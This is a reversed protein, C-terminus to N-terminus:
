KDLTDLREARQQNQTAQKHQTSPGAETSPESDEKLKFVIQHRRSDIRDIVVTLQDDLFFGRKKSKLSLYVQDFSYKDPMDKTSVFGELGVDDLKIFFGASTSRFLRAQFTQGKLTEAYQAKLWQEMLNVSQRARQQADALLELSKQTLPRFSTGKIKNKILRHVYFDVYKRIPSTFNTYLDLGMGCHPAAQTALVSRELQRDIVSRLPSADPTREALNVLESFKDPETLHSTDLTTSHHPNIKDQIIKGINEIRDRRVGSHTIFLGTACEKAMFQAACRNASIMCEAVIHNGAGPIIKIIQAIKEQDDLQIQFDFQEERITAYQARWRNFAEALLHLQQISAQAPEPIGTQNGSEIFANVQEYSLKARSRILALKLQYDRISGDLSVDMECVLAYRDEDAVLSALNQTIAMPLMPVTTGPFYISTGRKFAEREIASDSGIFETPDAIAVKLQWGDTMAEAFLADDMDLTTASDITVFPITRLDERDGPEISLNDLEQKIQQNVEKPWFHRIDFKAMSFLREIGPQNPSGIKEVVEVQPKGTKYPHQTLKCKILDGDKAHQTRNPPIYLWRNVNHVQPEAFSVKNKTRLVAVFTKLEPKLLRLLEGYDKNKADTFIEIEVEDGPFVRNMQEPSLYVDKGTADLTVFGFRSNSGKVKGSAIRRNANIEKKLQKLQTLADMNLM